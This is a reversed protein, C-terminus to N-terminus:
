SLRLLLWPFAYIWLVVVLAFAYSSALYKMPSDEEFRRAVYAGVIWGPFLIAALAALRRVAFSAAGLVIAGVDCEVVYTGSDVSPFLCSLASLAYAFLLLDAFVVIYVYVLLFRLIGNDPLPVHRRIAYLIAGLVIALPVSFVAIRLVDLAVSLFDML